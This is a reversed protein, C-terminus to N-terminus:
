YPDVACGNCSEACVTCCAEPEGGIYCQCMRWRNPEPCDGATSSVANLNATLLGINLTLGVIVLLTSKVRQM